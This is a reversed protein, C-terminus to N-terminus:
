PQSFYGTLLTFTCWALLVFIQGRQNLGTDLFSLYDNQDIVREQHLWEGFESHMLPVGVYSTFGVTVMTTLCIVVDLQLRAEGVLIKFLNGGLQWVIIQLLYLNSPFM